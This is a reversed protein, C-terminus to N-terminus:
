LELLDRLAAGGSRTTAWLDGPPEAGLEGQSTEMWPQDLSRMILGSVNRWKYGDGREERGHGGSVSSM